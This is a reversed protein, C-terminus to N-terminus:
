VEVGGNKLKFPRCNGNHDELYGDIRQPWRCGDYCGYVPLGHLLVWPLAERSEWVPATKAWELTLMRLASQKLIIHKLKEGKDGLERMLRSIEDVTAPEEPPLPRDSTFLPEMPLCNTMDIRM